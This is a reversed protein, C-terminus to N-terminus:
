EVVSDLVRELIGNHIHQEGDTSIAEYLALPDLWNALDDHPATGLRVM